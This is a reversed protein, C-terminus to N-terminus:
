GGSYIVTIAGFVWDASSAGNGSDVFLGDPFLLGDDPITLCPRGTASAPLQDRYTLLLTGTADSGNYFKLDADEGFGDDNTSPGRTFFLTHLRVRGSIELNPSSGGSVTLQQFKCTADFTEM